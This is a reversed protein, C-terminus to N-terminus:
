AESIPYNWICAKILGSCDVLYEGNLTKNMFYGLRYKTQMNLIDNLRQLFLDLKIM